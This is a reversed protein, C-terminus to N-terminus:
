KEKREVKILVLGLTYLKQLLGQLAAQDTMSGTLTTIAWGDKGELTIKLGDFYELWSQSIMGQVQIQYLAPQELSIRQILETM